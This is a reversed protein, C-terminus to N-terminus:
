VVRVRSQSILTRCRLSSLHFMLVREIKGSIQVCNGLESRTFNLRGRRTTARNFIYGRRYLTPDYKEQVSARARKIHFDGFRIRSASLPILLRCFVSKGRHALLAPLKERSGTGNSHCLLKGRVPIGNEVSM